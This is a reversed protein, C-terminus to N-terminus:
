FRRSYDKILIKIKSGSYILHFIFTSIVEDFYLFLRNENVIEFRRLDITHKLKEVTEEIVAWGSPLKVSIITM